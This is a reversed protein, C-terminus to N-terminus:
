ECRLARAPDIRLARRAPQWSAALVLALMIVPVAVFTAPDVPQVGFLMTRLLGVGATALPIGVAAGAAALLLARKMVLGVIHSEDAGLARRVGFEATRREVAYAQVGYVGLVATALTMLAFLVLALTYFRPQDFTRDLREALPMANFIPAAQDLERVFERVVPILSAPDSESRVIVGGSLRNFALIEGVQTIPFYMIPEDADSVAGIKVSEVVGVITWTKGGISLVRRGIADADFYRHALSEDVLVVPPAQQHDSADFVRGALLRTGLAGHYDTSIVQTHARPFDAPDAPRPLGDIRFTGAMGGAHLPLKSGFAVATVGRVGRIRAMLDDYFRTQRGQARWADEALGVQFTLVGAPQYGPSAHLLHWLSRGILSAGVLLVVALAVQAVVLAGRFLEASRSGDRAPLRHTASLERLDTDRRQWGPRLGVVVATILALGTAAALAAWEFRIDGLRPLRDPAVVPLVDLIWWGVLGGLAAGAGVLSLQEFLLPRLLRTRAAGLAMRIAIDRARATNRAVLLNALSACAAALVLAMGAFLARLAPRAEAVMDDRLPVARLRPVPVIGDFFAPDEMAIARLVREGEQRVDEISASPHMRAIVDISMSIMSRAGPAPWTRRGPVWIDVDPAPLAVGSPVVGVITHSVDEIALVGGVAEHRRGLMQTWLRRSVVAVPLADPRDDSENLLRGHEPAASLVDFFRGGVSAVLVQETSGGIGVTQGGSSYPVIADLAASEQMWLGITVAALRGGVQPITPNRDTRFEALRVLRDSEPYPLPRLLVGSVLSFVATSLGIAVTLALLAVSTFLPSSALSRRALRWDAAIEDGLLRPSRASLVNERRPRHRRVAVASRVLHGVLWAAAYADGRLPRVTAACEDLLDRVVEHRYRTPILWACLGAVFTLTRPM